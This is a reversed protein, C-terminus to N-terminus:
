CSLTKALENIGIHKIEVARALVVQTHNTQAKMIAENASTAYVIIFNKLGTWNNIGSLEYKNM